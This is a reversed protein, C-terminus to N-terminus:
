QLVGAHTYKKCMRWEYPLVWIRRRGGSMAETVFEDSIIEEVIYQSPDGPLEMEGEGAFVPMIGLRRVVQTTRPDRYNVEIHTIMPHRQRVEHRLRYGLTRSFDEGEYGRPDSAQRTDRARAIAVLRMAQTQMELPLAPILWANFALQYRGSPCADTPAAIAPAAPAYVVMLLAALATLKQM